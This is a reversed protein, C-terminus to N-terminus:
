LKKDCFDGDLDSDCCWLRLRWDLTRAMTAGSSRPTLLCAAARAELEREEDDECSSSSRLWLSTTALVVAADEASGAGADAGVAKVADTPRAPAHAAIRVRMMVEEEAEDAACDVLLSRLLAQVVVLVLASWRRCADLWRDADGAYTLHSRQRM